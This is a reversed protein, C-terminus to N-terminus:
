EFLNEYLNEAILRNGKKNCHGFDGGFRDTFYDKYGDKNIAKQFNTKNELFILNEKNEFIKKLPEIERIPYQMIVLKASISETIQKIRKYNRRLSRKKTIEKTSIYRERNLIKPLSLEILNYTKLNKIFGIIPTEKEQDEPYKVDNIGAMIIVYKINLNKNRQKLEELLDSSDALVKAKNLTLYKGTKHNENLIEQLQYPWAEKGGIATTSDGLCFITETNKNGQKIIQNNIQEKNKKFIIGGTYLFAELTLFVLFCGIIFTLLIKNIKKLM